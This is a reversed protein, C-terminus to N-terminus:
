LAIPGPRNAEIVFSRLTRAGAGAKKVSDMAVLDAQLRERALDLRLYGRYQSNAIMLNPTRAAWADLMNQPVGQSSISTTVLESAVLPTDANAAKRHLGSVVFAHIDGSLVVPNAVQKEALADILRARAAPYGPWADTSYRPAGNTQESLDSMVTGQGLLNWRSKSSALAAFLWSEQRAGLMQRSEQQLEPCDAASVRNGGGRGPAPCAEPSRYQRQDLMFISALDGFARQAYLRMSTGFPVARRPLPM